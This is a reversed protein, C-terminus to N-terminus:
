LASTFCTVNQCLYQLKSINYNPFTLAHDTEWMWHRTCTLTIGPTLEKTTYTGMAREICFLRYPQNLTPSDSPPSLPHPPPNFTSNFLCKTIPRVGGFYIGPGWVTALGDRQLSCRSDVNPTISEFTPYFIEKFLPFLLPNLQDRSIPTTFPIKYNWVERNLIRLLPYTFFVASLLNAYFTVFLWCLTAPSLPQVACTQLDLLGTHKTPLEHFRDLFLVCTKPLARIPLSHTCPSM